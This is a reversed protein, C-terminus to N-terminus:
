FSFDDASLDAIRVDEILIDHNGFSIAVGDATNRMDVDAFSDVARLGSLEIVDEGPTFDVIRDSGGATLNNFVFTDAGAGGRLEDDGLGGNLTDNGADGFLQDDGEGGGVFDNGRGGHVTDNHHGAGIRDDGDGGDIEDWGYGGGITDNGAGGHVTDIGYSGALRDNGDDGSLLDDGAGGSFLDDGDGGTITDNGDGGGGRDNGDGGDLMDHGGGGGLRDNGSGGYVEDNGAGGPLRDDGGMGALVDAGSTGKLGEDAATGLQLGPTSLPVPSSEQPAQPQSPQPEPDPEPAPEPAPASPVSGGAADELQAFSYTGDQFTFVEVNRYLDTGEASTIRVGGGVYTVKVDDISADTYATDRGAGGDVTDNGGAGELVNNGDNGTLANDAANGTLDLDAVGLLRANIADRGLLTMDASSLLTDGDVLDLKVNGATVRLRAEYTAGGSTVTVVQLGNSALEVAYGGAQATQASNGGIEFRVGRVGEGISYFDDGDDDNYAVGTLFSRGGTTAFNQTEMATNFGQYDGTAIGVGVERFAGDLINERHGDSRFLTEHMQGVAADLDLRGSTGQYALNEGWAWSGTFNYGADTMRAGANSGGAGTHSFTDTDLMWDSHDLAATHLAAVPALPTLAQDPLNMGNILAQDTIGLRGPEGAPDLRTRNLLEIALQEHSTVTM